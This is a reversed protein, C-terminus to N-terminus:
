RENHAFDTPFLSLDRIQAQFVLGLYRSCHHPPLHPPKGGLCGSVCPGGDGVGSSGSGGNRRGRLIGGGLEWVSAGSWEPGVQKPLESCGSPHNLDVTGRAHLEQREEEEGRRRRRTLGARASSLDSPSSVLNNWIEQTWRSFWYDLASRRPVDGRNGRLRGRKPEARNGWSRRSEGRRSWVVAWGSPLRM